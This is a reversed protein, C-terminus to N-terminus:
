ASMHGGGQWRLRAALDDKWSRMPKHVPMKPASKSMTLRVCHATADVQDDHKGAPFRLFETKFEDVWPAETPVWVKGVQLRGRLPQARVMKDTLTSLIEYSPYYNREACTKTFTSMLSKLIQGDEFGILIPKWEQAYSVVRQMLEQGDGLKFRYVDLVYLNDQPDQAITVGVTYDSQSRESIAWDWAQYINIELAHPKSAYHRFMQKTFYAGDEPTPNQQYLSAWMRKQGAAYFNRKIRLMAETDYREPHLATDKPRTMRAGEPVDSEPPIQVISNDELLYEDGLDNIAPYKVIEFVDGEGADMLQQIRGAFDDEHWTTMIALVGGGPALRTYATTIYWSWINDRQLQSDAAEIDRVLDDLVLVHSGRGTIGSGVGASLYGGGMTTNWNEVSQSTPDLQAKPFLAQYSPDRIIDRIYRSFSMALSGTHSAAIIEWQPNHGLIFPAFHRSGIESKGSRPPCMLLLRPSKKAQVDEMFRVLRRCIDEHVWGAEYMPRFRKIFQLLNRRALTRAALEQSSPCDYDLEVNPFQTVLDGEEDIVPEPVVPERTLCDSCTSATTSPFDLASKLEKCVDCVIKGDARKRVSAM